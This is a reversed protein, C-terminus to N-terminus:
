GFNYRFTQGLEKIGGAASRGIFVRHFEGACICSLVFNEASVPRIVSGGITSNRECAIWSSHRPFWRYHATDHM